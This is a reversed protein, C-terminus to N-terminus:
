GVNPQAGAANTTRARRNAVSRAHKEGKWGTLHETYLARFRRLFAAEAVHPGQWPWIEPGVADRTYQERGPGRMLDRFETCVMLKDATHVQEHLLCVPELCNYRDLIVALVRNEVQSFPNGAMQLCEKLPKAVDTVYAEAADHLLGQLLIRPERQGQECLLDVLRYSHEAVSYFVKCHGTFRCKNALAHAIDEIEIDKARPDLVHFM